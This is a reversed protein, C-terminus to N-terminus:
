GFVAARMLLRSAFAALLFYPDPTLTGPFVFRGALAIAPSQTQM